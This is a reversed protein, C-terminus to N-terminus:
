NRTAQGTGGRVRGKDGVCEGTKGVTLEMEVGQLLLTVQMTHILCRGGNGAM